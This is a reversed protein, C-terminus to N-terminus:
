SKLVRGDSVVLRGAKYVDRVLNVGFHSPLYRWTPLEWLVIDALKGPALSGRDEGRRVAWAANITAACIAEAPTMRLDSCAITLIAALSETLCSGPNFDTALAVAVGAEIMRRAPAKHNLGLYFTTGPLLVAITESAALAAIGAESVRGLHDASVAGLECALETGGLPEIEDAHIKLDYGLERARSLIRRSEAINYVHGECFIDCFEALPKLEPLLRECLEDIWEERRERYDVPIEHAALNTAILDVPHERDLAAITELQRRETALELGYGSKAEATTTGHSLMRDLSVRGKAMLQDQSAGRVARVTSHIGGGALAMAAYSKGEIRAQYDNERSGFFPLHTHPDVFGPLAILGRASRRERAEIGALEARPGVAVIRGESIAIAGDEIVGLEGMASGRRPGPACGAPELTVLERIDTLLLEARM